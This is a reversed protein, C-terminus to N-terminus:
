RRFTARRPRCQQILLSYHISFVSYQTSLVERGSVIREEFRLHEQVRELLYSRDAFRENVRGVIMDLVKGTSSHGDLLFFVYTLLLTTFIRLFLVIDSM